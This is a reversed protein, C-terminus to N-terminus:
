FYFYSVYYLIQEYVMQLALHIFKMNPFLDPLTIDDKTSMNMNQHRYISSMINQYIFAYRFPFKLLMSLLKLLILNNYVVVKGQFMILKDIWLVQTEFAAYLTIKFSYLSNFHLSENPLIRIQFWIYKEYDLKCKRIAIITM